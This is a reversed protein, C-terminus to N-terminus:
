ARTFSNGIGTEYVQLLQQVSYVDQFHFTFHGADYTTCFGINWERQPDAAEQPRHRLPQLLEGMWFGNAVAADPM